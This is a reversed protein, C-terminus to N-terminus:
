PRPAAGRHVSAVAVGLSAQVVAWLSGTLPAAKPLPTPHPPWSGPTAADGPHHHAQLPGTKPPPGVELCPVRAPRGGGLLPRRTCRAARHEHQPRDARLGTLCVQFGGAQTTARGTPLVTRQLQQSNVSVCTHTNCPCPLPHPPCTHRQTTPQLERVSCVPARDEGPMAAGDQLQHRSCTHGWSPVGPPQWCGRPHASPPQQRPPQQHPDWGSPRGATWTPGWTLLCSPRCPAGRPARLGPGRSGRTRVARHSRLPWSQVPLIGKRRLPLWPHDSLYRPAVGGWAESSPNALSRPDQPAPPNQLQQRGPPPHGTWDCVDSPVECM